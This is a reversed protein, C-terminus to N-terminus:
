IYMELAKLQVLIRIVVLGIVLEILLFSGNYIASYVAPFTCTNGLSQFITQSCFSSAFSAFFLIGSVFHCLFRGAVALSVGFYPKKKLFGALGLSGFALPYDLLVQAPYYIGTSADQVLAVLGFAVGGFVGIRWGRRLALLLTPVM